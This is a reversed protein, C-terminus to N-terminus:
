VRRSGRGRVGARGGTRGGVPPPRAPPLLKSLNAAAEEAVALSSGFRAVAASPPAQQVPVGQTAPPGAPVPAVPVVQQVPVVGPPQVHMSHAVMGGMPAGPIQGYGQQMPVMGPPPAYGPPPIPMGKASHPQGVQSSPPSRSEAPPGATSGTSGQTAAQSAPDPAVAGADGKGGKGGVNMRLIEDMSINRGGGRKGNQPMAEELIADPWARATLHNHTSYVQAAIHKVQMSMPRLASYAPSSGVHADLAAVLAELRAAADHIESSTSRVGSLLERAAAVGSDSKMKSANLLRTRGFDLERSLREMLKDQMQACNRCHEMLQMLTDDANGAQGVPMHAAASVAAEVRDVIHQASVATATTSHGNEPTGQAAIADELDARCVTLEAELASIRAALAAVMSDDRHGAGGTDAARTRAHMALISALQQADSKAALCISPVQPPSLCTLLPTVLHCLVHSRPACTTSREVLWVQGASLHKEAEYKERLLQAVHMGANITDAKVTDPQSIARHLVPMHRLIEGEIQSLDTGPMSDSASETAQQFRTIISSLM